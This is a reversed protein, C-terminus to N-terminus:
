RADAGLAAVAADIAAARVDETSADTLTTVRSLGGVAVVARARRAPSADPGVLLDPFRDIWRASAAELDVHALASADRLIALFARRHPILTDFLGELLERAAVHEGAARALLSDVDTIFPQFISRALDAKAPFHYYLAAKSIELRDAIDRLSTAAFGKTIFLDLAVAEIRSRTDTLRRDVRVPSNESMIIVIRDALLRIQHFLM